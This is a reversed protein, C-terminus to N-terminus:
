ISTWVTMPSACECGFDSWGDLRPGTSAAASMLVRCACGCVCVAVCSYRVSCMHACQLAVYVDCPACLAYARASLQIYLITRQVCVCSGAATPRSLFRRGLPYGHTIVGAHAATARENWAHLVSACMSVCVIYASVCVRVHSRVPGPLCWGMRTLNICQATSLESHWATSFTHTHTHTHVSLNVYMCIRKHISCTTLEECEVWSIRYTLHPSLTSVPM